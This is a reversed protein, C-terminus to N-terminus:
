GVTADTGCLMALPKLFRSAMAASVSMVKLSASITPTQSHQRTSFDSRQKIDQNIDHELVLLHTPTRGELYSNLLCCARVCVSVCVCVCVCVCM